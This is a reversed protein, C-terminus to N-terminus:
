RPFRFPSLVYDSKAKMFVSEYNLGGSFHNVADLFSLTQIHLPNSPPEVSVLAFLENRLETLSGVSQGICRM